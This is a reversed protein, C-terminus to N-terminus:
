SNHHVCGRPSHELWIASIIISDFKHVKDPFYKGIQMNLLTERRNYYTLLTQILSKTEPIFKAVIKCYIRLNEWIFGVLLCAWSGKKIYVFTIIKKAFIWFVFLKASRSREAVCVCNIKVFECIKWRAAPCLFRSTGNSFHDSCSGAFYKVARFGEAHHPM